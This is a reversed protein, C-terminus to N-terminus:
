LLKHLNYDICNYNVIIANRTDTIMVSVGREGEEESIKKM